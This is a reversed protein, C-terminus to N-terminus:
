TAHPAPAAGAAEATADAAQRLRGALTRLVPVLEPPDLVRFDFGKVAIYLALEDLSTSGTHLICARAGAAELRGAAPSWRPALDELPAHFLVRAQHRYPASSISQPLYAAGDDAPPCPPPPPRGSVCRLRGA